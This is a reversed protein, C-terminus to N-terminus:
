HKHGASIPSKIYRLRPDTLSKCITETRDESGDDLVIVEYNPYDQNLAASVTTRIFREANYATIIISVSPLSSVAHM